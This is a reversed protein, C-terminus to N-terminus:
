KKAGKQITAGHNSVLSALHAIKADLEDYSFYDLSRHISSPTPLPSRSLLLRGDDQSVVISDLQNFQAKKAVKASLVRVAKEFEEDPMAADRDLKHAAQDKLAQKLLSEEVERRLASMPLLYITEFSTLMAAECKNWLAERLSSDIFDKESLAFALPPVSLSTVDQVVVPLPKTSVARLQTACYRYLRWHSLLTESAFDILLTTEALSFVPGVDVVVEVEIEVNTVVEVQQKPLSARLEDYSTQQKKNAKPDRKAEWQALAVPDVREEITITPVTRKEICPTPVKSALQLLRKTMRRAVPGEVEEEDRASHNVSAIDCHMDYVFLLLAQVQVDTFGTRTAFALAEVLLDVAVSGAMDLDFDNLTVCVARALLERVVSLTDAHTGNWLPSSEFFLLQDEEFSSSTLAGAFSTHHFKQRWCLADCFLRYVSSVFSLNKLSAQAEM